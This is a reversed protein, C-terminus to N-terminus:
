RRRSKQIARAHDVMFRVFAKYTEDDLADVETPTM